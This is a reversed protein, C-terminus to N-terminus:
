LMLWSTSKPWASSPWTGLDAAPGLTSILGGPCCDLSSHCQALCSKSKHEVASSVDYEIFVYNSKKCSLLISSARTWCGVAM